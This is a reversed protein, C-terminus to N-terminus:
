YTLGSSAKNLPSVDGFERYYSIVFEYFCRNGATKYTNENWSLGTGGNKYDDASVPVCYPQLEPKHRLISAPIIAFGNGQLAYNFVTSTDASEFIIKPYAGLDAFCKDLIDRMGYGVPSTYFNEGNLMKLNIVKKELLPHGPSFLAMASDQLVSITRVGRGEDPVIAPAALGFDVSLDSLKAEIQERPYSYFQLTYEPHAKQFAPLLNLAYLSVNTALSITTEYQKSMEHMESRINQAEALIVQARAYTRQGYENLRINRGVRHFLTVGLEAELRQIVKTLFPQSVWLLDAARTINEMEAVKCFYHLQKLDM